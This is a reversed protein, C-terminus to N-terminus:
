TEEDEEKEEEEAPQQKSGVITSKQPFKKLKAVFFGDMNHTHPYFRKTLSLSPHFRKERFRTFGSVGFNLGTDVVKVNRRSLAYDIVGENEEVLVSCTSYVLYGGTSSSANLADIAELILEKQMHSCREIAVESKSTKVSQDKAIVGTGSCPADLLIRDFGSMVKTFKRGDYNCVITNQVGMRYINAILSKCREKKYDNCVLLGTNKMLAAIYTAKGGPAACMDLIRENVQPALAMVPLLSSAGQMMYKGSLYEPTAGIPVQSDYIVLGVKSWDGIPDLNVGRSILAGALDRRRTKLTNTRITVPRPTECADLFELLESHPILQIIKDILYENYGYYVKLDHELLTVYEKRKRGPERLDKFNALVHLVERLRQSVTPLDQPENSISEIDPLEFVEHGAMQQTFEKKSEEKEKKLKKDRKRSKKEIPLEVLEEDDSCFDDAEEGISDDEDDSVSPQPIVEMEDDDRGEEHESESTTEGASDKKSKSKTKTVRTSAAVALNLLRKKTRQRIRGGLKKKVKDIKKDERLAAPITPDGQKRAKRGPGKKGLLKFDKVRGM